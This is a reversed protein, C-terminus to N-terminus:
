SDEEMVPGASGGWVGFKPFLLDDGEGQKGSGAKGTGFRKEVGKEEGKDSHLGRLKQSEGAPM